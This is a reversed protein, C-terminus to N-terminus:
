FEVYSTGCSGEDHVLGRGESDTETIGDAKLCILIRKLVGRPSTRCHENWHIRVSMRIVLASGLRHFKQGSRLWETNPPSQLHPCACLAQGPNPDPTQGYTRAWVRRPADGTTSSEIGKKSMWDM